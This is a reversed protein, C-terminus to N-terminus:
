REIFNGNYDLIGYQKLTEIKNRAVSIEFSLASNDAELRDLKKKFEEERCLLELKHSELCEIQAKLWSIENNADNLMNKYKNLM